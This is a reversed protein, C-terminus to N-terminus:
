DESLLVTYLASSYFAGTGEDYRPPSPRRRRGLLEGDGFDTAITTNVLIAEVREHAAALLLVPDPFGKAEVRVQLPLHVAGTAHEPVGGVDFERVTIRAWVDASPPQPAYHAHVSGASTLQATITADASLADALSQITTHARIPM